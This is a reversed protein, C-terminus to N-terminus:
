DQLLQSRLHRSEPSRTDHGHRESDHALATLSPRLAEIHGDAMGLLAVIEDIRDAAEDHFLQRLFASLGTYGALEWHDIRVAAQALALDRVVDHQIECAARAEAAIGAAGADERPSVTHGLAVHAKHLALGVRTNVALQEGLTSKLLPATAVRGMNTLTVEFLQNAGALRDIEALCYALISKRGM